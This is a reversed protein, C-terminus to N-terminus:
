EAVSRFHEKVDRINEGDDTRVDLCHEDVATIHGKRGTWAWRKGAAQKIEVYDGIEM